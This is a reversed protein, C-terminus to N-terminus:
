AACRAESSRAAMAPPKRFVHLDRHVVRTAAPEATRRATPATTLAGNEIPVLLCVVHQWYRLGLQTCRTVTEAGPDRGADHSSSTAVGLYGGPRLVTACGALLAECDRGRQTRAGTTLILDACGAPHVTVGAPLRRQQRLFEAAQAALLHPLERPDGHLVLGGARREAQAPASTVGVATRAQRIAEHFAPLNPRGTLDLVLDGADSYTAIARRAIEM